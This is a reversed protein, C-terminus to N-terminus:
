LYYGMAFDYEAFWLSDWRTGTGQAFWPRSGTGRIITIVQGDERALQYRGRAIKTKKVTYKRKSM